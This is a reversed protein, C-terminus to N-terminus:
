FYATTIGADAFIKEMDMDADTNASAIVLDPKAAIIQEIDPEVHSGINVVDEGLDLDFSSWSDNAAGVVEGGALMWIDTFSGILTVVRDHSEVTVNRGIDDIFTFGKEAEQLAEEEERKQAEKELKEELITSRSEEESHEEEAAEVTSGAMGGTEVGKDSCGQLLLVAALFPVIMKKM